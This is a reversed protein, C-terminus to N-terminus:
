IDAFDAVAYIPAIDGVHLNQLPTPPADPVFLEASISPQANIISFSRLRLYYGHKTNCHLEPSSFQYHLSPHYKKAIPAINQPYQKIISDWSPKSKVYYDLANNYNILLDEVLASFSNLFRPPLNNKISICPEAEIRYNVHMRNSSYPRLKSM